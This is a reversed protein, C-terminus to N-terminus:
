MHFAQRKPSKVLASEPTILHPHTCIDFPFRKYDIHAPFHGSSSRLLNDRAKDSVDKQWTDFEMQSNENIGKIILVSKNDLFDEVVRRRPSTIAKEGAMKIEHLSRGDGGFEKDPIFNGAFGYTIEGINKTGIIGTVESFFVRIENGYNVGLAVQSRARRGACHNLDDELYKILIGVDYGEVEMATDESIAGEGAKLAKYAAIFLIGAMPEEIDETVRSSYPLGFDNDDKIKTKNSSAFFM